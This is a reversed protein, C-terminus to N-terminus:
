GRDSEAEYDRPRDFQSAIEDYIEKAIEDPTYYGVLYWSSFTKQKEIISFYVIVDVYIVWEDDYDFVTQVEEVYCPFGEILREIERQIIKKVM